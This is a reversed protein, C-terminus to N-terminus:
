DPRNQVFRAGPSPPPHAPGAFCQAQRMWAQAVPGSVRLGTDQVHRTQTAVRAFDVAAGDICNNAQPQGYVWLAGSPARLSVRPVADPVAQQRAQFSWAFTNVGLVVINRIRDSELREQGHLDFLAQGHAWTEMQRATICSRASMDPGAWRLRAKPDIGRWSTLMSQWQQRWVALLAAGREVIAENELARLKGAAISHGARRLESEFRASDRLTWDAMCNWYHLHVLVDNATWGKFQTARQWDAPSCGSLLADLLACEQAFDDVGQLM